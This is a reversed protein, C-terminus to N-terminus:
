TLPKTLVNEFLQLVPRIDQGVVMDFGADFSKRCFASLNDPEDGRPDHIRVRLVDNDGVAMDVDGLGDGILVAFPRSVKYHALEKHSWNM